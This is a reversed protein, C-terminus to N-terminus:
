RSSRYTIWMPSAWVLEGDQQLGRVYYYSTKGAEPKEDRWTFSVNQTKPEVTYVYKNDKIIQVKAFPATGILKVTLMPPETTEFSEGMLHTVGRVDARVDALIDDTAGYVRRKQFAELIAERTPATVYMNCYSIHTSIHDSSAEFALKYGKLLALSVFGKERWGGISDNANNSRPADPMEYNQRDGQYIEVVPEALPDNDRWDTGMNTGSTHSAVIGNFHKLYRYLLQTDPANGPDEENTKPLRPLTRIGRQAFIVNRHGEPYAVSREYNFMPTFAGPSHFVDSLKQTLWWTYERGFGNDHDCCGIWDLAAADLAYRWADILSGDNGGDMSIETHRHFEGRVIRYETSGITARYDRLRRTDATLPSSNAASAAVPTAPSTTSVAALQMPKVPDSLVMRSVFLDNNYIDESRQSATNMQLRTNFQQRGDSANIILLEGAATSVLAPQKDLLNDSHPVFVAPLWAQGDFSTVNEFWVTGLLNWWQPSATRFSLWVRGGRDVLLRPYSNRPRIPPIPTQNPRRDKSAQPDPQVGGAPDSQRSDVDVDRRIAGPLAVGVDPPNFVRDGQWVQVRIWRGHYLAIGTTEDAGFDKGWNSDSEEWALWLRQENDYAITPYAEYKPTVAAAREVGLKGSADLTRLYIDYDGKRYSDWAITVEGNTAAAIAPNWENGASSAVVMAEGFKDGSQRAAHIQSRGNRLAQWAVIVNGKADTTAVPFIDAGRDSTLKLSGSGKGNVFARAYLDFNESGAQQTGGAWFVWVRGTSDIAVATKYLDGKPESVAVPESWKGQTLSTLFIQDGGTPEKLEDFNSIPAIQANRVGVFKSNPTFQQYAVWVTGKRDTMACPFDQENPERMMASSAPVRDVMARGALFKARNGYGIEAPKFSFNGQATKITVETSSNLRSLTAIVGNAVVRQQQPQQGGFARMPHTSLRWSASTDTKEGFADQMDFRWPEIRALAGSSVTLSGDWLQSNTDALGLLIRFGQEEEPAARTTIPVSALPDVSSVASRTRNLQQLAWIATVLVLLLLAFRLTIRM